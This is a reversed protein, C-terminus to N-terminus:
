EAIMLPGGDQQILLKMDADTADMMASPAPPCPYPCFPLDRIARPNPRPKHASEIM